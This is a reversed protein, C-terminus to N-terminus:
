IHILSLLELQELQVVIKESKVGFVRRRLKEIVLKLHEIQESSSRLQEDQQSLTQRHSELEAELSRLENQHSAALSLMEEQHKVLLAKLAERDLGELDPWPSFDM